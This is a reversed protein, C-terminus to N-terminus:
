KRESLTFDNFSVRIKYRRYKYTNQSYYGKNTLNLTLNLEHVKFKYSFIHQM